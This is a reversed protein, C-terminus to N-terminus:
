LYVEKKLVKGNQYYLMVPFFDISKKLCNDM